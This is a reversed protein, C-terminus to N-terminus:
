IINYNGDEDNVQNEDGFFDMVSTNKEFVGPKVDYSNKREGEEKAGNIAEIKLKTGFFNGDALGYKM